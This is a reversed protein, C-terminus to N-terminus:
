GSLKVVHFTTDEKPDKIEKIETMINIHIIQCEKAVERLEM